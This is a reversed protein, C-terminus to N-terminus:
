GRVHKPQDAGHTQTGNYSLSSDEPPSDGLLAMVYQSSVLMVLGSSSTFYLKFDFGVM